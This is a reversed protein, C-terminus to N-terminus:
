AYKIYFFILNVAAHWLGSFIISVNDTKRIESLLSAFTNLLKTWNMLIMGSFYALLWFRCVIRAEFNAVAILFLLSVFIRYQIMLVFFLVFYYNSPRSSHFFSSSFRRRVAAQEVWYMLLRNFLWCTRARENGLISSTQKWKDTNNKNPYRYLEHENLIKEERERRQKKKSKAQKFFLLVFTRTGIIDNKDILTCVFKDFSNIIFDTAFM